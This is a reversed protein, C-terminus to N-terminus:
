ILNPGYFFGNKYKRRKRKNMKIQELKTDSLENDSDEAYKNIKLEPVAINVDQCSFKKYETLEVYKQQLDVVANFINRM